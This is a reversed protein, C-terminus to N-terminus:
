RAPPPLKQKLILSALEAGAAAAGRENFHVDDYFFELSKPMSKALDYLPISDEAALRRMQDNLSELAEDMFDERYAVDGRYSMWHWKSVGPDVSSNWTSQQTMFVLQIRHAGAVGAITRLNRAYAGPDVRPRENSVPASERLRVKEKYQTTSAIKELVDRDTPFLRARLYFIRRPIQFETAVLKMLPLKPGSGGGAYHLYDYHYISRTLDNVGSFVVILDPELHVIRHVLMSVHDDSADGSKGAGYVKVTVGDPAHESLGKQLVSNLAESNDLYLCEATSGGIIFIRFENKPKPTALYDGRFGANNTSFLNRGHVGPLGPEPETLFNFNPPFESKIYQNLQRTYKSDAYPDPVPAILRLGIEAILICIILTAIAVALGVIRKM